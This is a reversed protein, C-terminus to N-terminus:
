SVTLLGTEVSYNVNYGEAIFMNLLDTRQTGDLPAVYLEMDFGYANLPDESDIVLAIKYLIYRHYCERLEPTNIHTLYYANDPANRIIDGLAMFTLSQAKTRSLPM